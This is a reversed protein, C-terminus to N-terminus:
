RTKSSRAMLEHVKSEGLHSVLQQMLSSDLVNATGIDMSRLVNEVREIELSKLCSHIVNRHYRANDEQLEASGIARKKNLFNKYATEAIDLNGIAAHLTAESILLFPIGYAEQDQFRYRKLADLHKLAQEPHDSNSYTDFIAALEGANLHVSGYHKWFRDLFEEITETKGFKVCSSFAHKYSSRKPKLERRDLENFLNKAEVHDGANACGQLLIDFPAVDINEHGKYASNFYAQADKLNGSNVWASLLLDRHRDASWLGLDIGFQNWFTTSTPEGALVHPTMIQTVMKVNAVAGKFRKSDQTLLAVADNKLGAKSYALALRSVAAAYLRHRKDWIKEEEAVVSSITFEGEFVNEANEIDGREAHLSLLAFSGVADPRIQESAAKKQLSVAEDLLGRKALAKILYGYTQRDWDIGLTNLIESWAKAKLSNRSNAAACIMANIVIRKAESSEVPRLGVAVAKGLFKRDAESAMGLLTRAVGEAWRFDKASSTEIIKRVVEGTPGVRQVMLAFIYRARKPMRAEIYQNVVTTYAQKEPETRNVAECFRAAFKLDRNFRHLLLYSVTRQFLSDDPVVAAQRMQPRIQVPDLCKKSRVYAKFLQKYMKAVLGPNTASNVHVELFQRLIQECKDYDSRSAATTMAELSQIPQNGIEKFERQARRARPKGGVAGEHQQVIREAM